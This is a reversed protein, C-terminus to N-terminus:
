TMARWAVYAATAIVMLAFVRRALDAHGALARALPAGALLGVLNEAATPADLSAAAAALAATSASARARCM